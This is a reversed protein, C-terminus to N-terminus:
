IVCAKDFTSIQIAPTSSTVNNVHSGDRLPTSKAQCDVLYNSQKGLLILLELFSVGGNGNGTM